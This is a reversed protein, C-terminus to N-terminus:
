VKEIIYLPFKESYIDIGYEISKINLYKGILNEYEKQTPIYFKFKMKDWVIGEFCKM